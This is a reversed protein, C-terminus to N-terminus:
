GHPDGDQPEHSIEGLWFTLQHDNVAALLDRDHGLDIFGEALPGVLPLQLLQLHFSLHSSVSPYNKVSSTTTHSNVSSATTNHTCFLEMSLWFLFLMRCLSTDRVRFLFDFIVSSTLNLSVAEDCDCDEHCWSTGGVM